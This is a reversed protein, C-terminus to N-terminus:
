APGISDIGYHGLDDIHTIVTPPVGYGLKRYHGIITKSGREAEDFPIPDSQIAWLGAKLDLPRRGNVGDQTLIVFQGAIRFDGEGSRHAELAPVADALDNFSELEQWEFTPQGDSDEGTCVKFEIIIM